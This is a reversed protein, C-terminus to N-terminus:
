KSDLYFIRDSRATSNTVKDTITMELRYKGKPASGLGLTFVQPVRDRDGLVEERNYNVGMAQEGLPSIGVADSISGFLKGVHNSNTRDIELM